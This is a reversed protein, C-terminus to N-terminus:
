YIIHDGYYSRRRLYNALIGLAAGGGFGLLRNGSGALLSGLAGLGLTSALYSPMAEAFAVGKQSHAQNTEYIDKVADHLRRIEAENFSDPVIDGDTTVDNILTTLHDRGRRGLKNELPEGLKNIMDASDILDNVSFFDYEPNELKQKRLWKLINGTMALDASNFAAIKRLATMTKTNM